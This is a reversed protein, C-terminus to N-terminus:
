KKEKITIFGSKEADLINPHLQAKNEAFSINGKPPIHFIQNNVMLPLIYNVKSKIEVM